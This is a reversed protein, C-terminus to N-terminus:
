ANRFNQIVADAPAGPPDILAGHNRNLANAGQEARSGSAPGRLPDAILRGKQERSCKSQDRSREPYPM